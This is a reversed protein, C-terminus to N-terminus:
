MKGTMKMHKYEKIDVGAAMLREDSLKPTKSPKKENGGRHKQKKEHKNKKSKKPEVEEEVTEAELKRKKTKRSAQEEAAEAIPTEPVSTKEESQQMKNDVQAKVNTLELQPKQRQNVASEANVMAQFLEAKRQKKRLRKM